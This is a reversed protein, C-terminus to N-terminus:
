NPWKHKGIGHDASSEIPDAIYVGGSFSQNKFVVQNGCCNRTDWGQTSIYQRIAGATGAPVVRGMPDTWVYPNGTNNRVLQGPHIVGRKSGAWQTEPSTCDENPSRFECMFRTQALDLPNVVTTANDIDFTPNAEFLTGIQILADWTEYPTQAACATTPLSRRQRNHVSFPINASTGPIPQAGDCNAVAHGFDAMLRLQVLTQGTTRAAIHWDVTHFQEMARRPSGSGQHLTIMWARGNLDDNTVFVKFGKHPEEMGHQAATYGFLPMGSQAFGAYKRPDSGHEHDFFCGSADQPPHWTPYSRGDPGVATYRNHIEESCYGSTPPPPEAAPCTLTVLVGANRVTLRSPCTVTVRSGPQLPVVSQAELAAASLGLLLCLLLTRM